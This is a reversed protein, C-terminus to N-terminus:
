AGNPTKPKFENLFDRLNRFFWKLIVFVNYSSLCRRVLRFAHSRWRAESWVWFKWISSLSEKEWADLEFCMVLWRYRVNWSSKLSSFSKGATALLLLPAVFCFALLVKMNAARLGRSAEWAIYVLCLLDSPVPSLTTKRHDVHLPSTGYTDSRLSM